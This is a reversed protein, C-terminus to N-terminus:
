HNNCSIIQNVSAFASVSSVTITISDCAGATVCGGEGRAYYTTTVTPNVTLSDGATSGISTGGCSGTYWEWTTADNLSGNAYLKTSSGLCLNNTGASLTPFDPDICSSTINATYAGPSIDYPTGNHSTWNLYNNISNRIAVATGVLSGTYKANDDETALAPFLSVCNVGNTLGTPVTSRATGLPTPSPDNWKTIADLTLPTGNGDDGHVGAIFTPTGSPEPGSPDYYAIVQDGGSLSWSTGSTMNVTGGGTITFTSSGTENIHIITGLSIGGAPSTWTLHAESTGAWGSTTSNWGEESFYIIEGAPINALAIFTFDDNAGSQSDTNYGIFAIDGKILTQSKSSFSCFLFIGLIFFSHLYNKM